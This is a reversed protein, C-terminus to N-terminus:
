KYLMQIIILLHYRDSAEKAPIGEVMPGNLEFDLDFDIVEQKFIAVGDTLEKKLPEQMECIKAQVQKAKYYICQYTLIIRPM